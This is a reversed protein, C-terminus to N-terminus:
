SASFVATVETDVTIEGPRLDFGASEGAADFSAKMAFARGVPVPEGVFRSVGEDIRELVPSGLGYADAFTAAREAADRAAAQRVERTLAATTAETLSWAIGPIQVGDIAAVATVFGGVAALDTFEVEVAGAARYRTVNSGTRAEGVGQEVWERFTALTVTAATWRGVAGSAALPEVAAIVAAHASIAGSLVAAQADGTSVAAVQVTAREPPVTRTAAGDVRITAM